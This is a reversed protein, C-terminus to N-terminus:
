RTVEYTSNAMSINSKFYDVLIAMLYERTDQHMENWHICHLTQMFERHEESITVENMKALSNVGCIDFYQKNQMINKLVSLSTQGKINEPIIGVEYKDLVDKSAQLLAGVNTNAIIIKM